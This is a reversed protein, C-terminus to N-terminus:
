DGSKQDSTIYILRRQRDDQDVDVFESRAKKRVQM